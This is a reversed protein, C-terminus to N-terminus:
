EPRPMRVQTSSSSPDDYTQNYENLLHAIRNNYAKAAAEDSEPSERIDNMITDLRDYLKIWQTQPLREVIFLDAQWSQRSENPPPPDSILCTYINRDRAALTSPVNTSNQYYDRGRRGVVEELLHILSTACQEGARQDVSNAAVRAQLDEYMEYVIRRLFLACESVTPGEANLEGSRALADLRELANIGRREQKLYLRTARVNGPVLKQLARSIYRDRMGLRYVSAYLDHEVLCDEFYAVAPTGQVYRQYFQQPLMTDHFSTLIDCLEEQRAFINAASGFQSEDDSEEDSSDSEEDTDNAQSANLRMRLSKSQRSILPYLREIQGQITESTTPQM